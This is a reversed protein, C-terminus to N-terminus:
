LSKWLYLTAYAEWGKYKKFIRKVHGISPKSKMALQNKIANHLGVDELPFANSHRFTKMLAYNATWNGVGKIKILEEKAEDFPLEAIKQTSILDLAFAEAIGITYKAKQISFQLSLLQDISFKAVVAPQPFLFYNNDDHLIGEGFNEVFRRKLTHAFQINIQQGLVAWVLSEFLDPQGVIRYGFYKKVLGALLKDTKALEYFPRLDTGLDFWASVYNVALRRATASPTGNIFELRMGSAEESLKMLMVEDNLRLLKYVKEDRVQHLVENPSRQLFQLCLKFSFEKPTEIIIKVDCSYTNIGCRVGSM